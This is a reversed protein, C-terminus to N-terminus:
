SPILGRVEGGKGRAQGGGAGWRGAGGQEGGALGDGWHDVVGGNHAGLEVPEDAGVALVHQEKRGGVAAAYGDLGRLAQATHDHAAHKHAAGHGAGGCRSHVGLRSPGRVHRHLVISAAEDIIGRLHEVVVDRLLRAPLRDPQQPQRVRAVRQRVADRMKAVAAHRARIHEALLVPRDRQLVLLHEHGGSPHLHARDVQIRPM